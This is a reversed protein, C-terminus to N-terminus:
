FKRASMTFPHTLSIPSSDIEYFDSIVQCLEDLNVPKKLFADAKVVGSKDLCEQIESGTCNGSIIIIMCPRLRKERELERIRQACVKGNLIPMDLDLTVIDLRERGVTEIFKHYAGLGNDSVDIIEIELTTLFGSIIRQSYLQDDAILAKLHRQSLRRKMTEIDLSRGGGEKKVPEVPLCIIFATGRGKKSYVKIEGNMRQVLEKTIFLGLGTGLKRKSVDSTVQTFRQFLKKLDEQSMGVGTDSVIIKLIGKASHQPKLRLQTKDIKKATFNLFLFNSDFMSFAQKKEFIGEDLDSQDNFPLPLFCQEDVANTACPIWEVDVDISGMDTFKVANGILNLFIQTLRYHDLMVVEPINKQIRMKGRLNKRKILESCVSWVREMTDYVRVPTANIELDGIEVKGTDLINNV